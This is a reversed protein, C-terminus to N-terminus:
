RDHVDLRQKRLHGYKKKLERLFDERDTAYKESLEERAERQFGVADLRKKM